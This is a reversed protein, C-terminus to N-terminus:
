DCAKAQSPSVQFAIEWRLSFGAVVNLQPIRLVRLLATTNHFDGFNSKVRNAFQILVRLV